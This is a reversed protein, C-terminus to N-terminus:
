LSLLKKNKRQKPSPQCAKDSGYGSEACTRSIKKASVTGFAIKRLVARFNFDVSIIVGRRTFNERM